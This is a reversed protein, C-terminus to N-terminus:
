EDRHFIRRYIYRLIFFVLLAILGYFVFATKWIFSLLSFAFLKVYEFPKQFSNKESAGKVSTPTTKSVTEKQPTEKSSESTTPESNLTALKKQSAIKLSEFTTGSRERWADLSVSAAVVPEKISEPTYSSIFDGAKEAQVAVSTKLADSAKATDLASLDKSVFTDKVTTERDDLVVTNTKGQKDVFTSNAIKASISHDGATVIWSISVDKLTDPAVTIEKKSLLTTKDYFEVMAVLKDPSGNFVATYIRITDGEKFDTKSYWINSPIIGSAGVDTTQAYVPIGAFALALSLTIIIKTVHRM